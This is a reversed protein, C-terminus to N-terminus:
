TNLLCWTELLAALHQKHRMTSSLSLEPIQYLHLETFLLITKPVSFNKVFFTKFDQIMDINSPMM